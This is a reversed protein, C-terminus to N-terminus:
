WDIDDAQMVNYSQAIMLPRVEDAMLGVCEALFTPRNVLSIDLALDVHGKANRRICDQASGASDYDAVTIVVGWDRDFLPWLTEYHTRGFECAALVEAVDYTGPEWHTTTNSVVALHANAEYSLAVVDDIIARITDSRMSGSVDLVLLNEKVPAHHVQAKYVGFTPRKVNFRMLDKFIMSGKKGPMLGVVSELKAAVDKISQAVEIEMAKWMEPLLEGTPVDPKFTVKGKVAPPVDLDDVIYSQLETSHDGRTLAQVLPIDVTISLLHTLQQADLDYVKGFFLTQEVTPLMDKLVAATFKLGPKLEVVDLSSRLTSSTMTEVPSQTM